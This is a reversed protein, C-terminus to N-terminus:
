RTKSTHFGLSNVNEASFQGLSSSVMHFKEEAFSQALLRVSYCVVWIAGMTNSQAPESCHRMATLMCSYLELFERAPHVQEKDDLVSRSHRATDHFCYKIDYNGFLM